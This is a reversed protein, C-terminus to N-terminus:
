HQHLEQMWEMQLGLNNQMLTGMREAEMRQKNEEDRTEKKAQYTNQM